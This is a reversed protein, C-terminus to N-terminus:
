DGATSPETAWSALTQGRPVRRSMFPKEFFWFFGFAFMITAPITLFLVNVVPLLAQITWSWSQMIALEHTLYISYSFIGLTSFISILAPVKARRVWSNEALVIRNVV